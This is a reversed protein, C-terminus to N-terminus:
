PEARGGEVLGLLLGALEDPCTIYPLHACDLRRFGWGPTVMAIEAHRDFGPHPFRVCRIYTRPVQAAAPNGGRVTGTFHGFPTSRLRPLVWALDAPDTVHWARSAIEEWPAASFRPLLWGDGEREVLAELGTRRDDPLLDLLCQGDDPVFADLYVLRALREPARNAVGTIVMGASSNGVLVVQDLDEYALTSVIDEVHTWLDVEPHVLHAREGLGTLTPAYARHGAASLLPILKRWSWGGLWAPHVLVFTAM